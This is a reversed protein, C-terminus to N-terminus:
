SVSYQLISRSGSDRDSGSNSDSGSGRDRESNSDSKNDSKSDSESDSESDGDSNSENDCDSESDSESHSVLCTPGTFGDQCHCKFKMCSGQGCEDSSLCRHGGIQQPQLPMTDTSSM